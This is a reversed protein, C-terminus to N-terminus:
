GAQTSDSGARAWAQRSQAVASGSGVRQSRKESLAQAAIAGAAREAQQLADPTIRTRHPLITDSVMLVAATHLELKGALAFLTACEMDLAQAGNEFLAHEDAGYFLDVSAMAVPKLRGGARLASLLDRHPALRDRAGLARSTGDRPLATVAVLLDGLELAPDLAGCTGVRVLRRAGLEALETIVIAASPGGMGSSQITLPDGDAAIGTYGWLGRNHNFMRPEALLAQALTLARGPDGPLLVREALPATPHVHIPM